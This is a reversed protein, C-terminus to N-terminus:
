KVGISKLGYYDALIKRSGPEAMDDSVFLLSPKKKMWEKLTAKQTSVKLTTYIASDILPFSISDTKSQAAFMLAQEREKMIKSYNKGSVLSAAIEKSATNALISLCLVIALAYAVQSNRAIERITKDKVCVGMYFALMFFVMMTAASLVNLAREPMSGNSLILIPILVILLLISWIAIFLSITKISAIHHKLMFIKDRIHTAYLFLAATSIWFLGSQFISWYVTFVSYFSSLISFLMNISKPDVVTMRERNGPAIVLVVISITYVLVTGLIGMKFEDFKKKNIIAIVLLIIGCLIAAIENSGNIAIVLLDLLIFPILKKKSPHHFLQIDVAVLLLMLIVSTQYTVASSFWYLATSLEPYVIFLNVSILAALLVKDRKVISNNILYSSIVSVLYYSAFVTLVILLLTHLYYHGLMFGGASFIAAILNSFYRGGWHMYIYQQFGLFGTQKYHLLAFYDDASAHNFFSLFILGAFFLVIATRFLGVCIKEVSKDNM